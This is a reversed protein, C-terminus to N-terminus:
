CNCRRGFWWPYNDHRESKRAFYRSHFDVLRMSEVGNRGQQFDFRRVWRQPIIRSNFTLVEANAASTLVLDTANVIIAKM